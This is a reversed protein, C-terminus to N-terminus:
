AQLRRRAAAVEERMRTLQAEIVEVEAEVRAKACAEFCESYMRNVHAHLTPPVEVNKVAPTKDKTPGALALAKTIQKGDLLEMLRQGRRKDGAAEADDIADLVKLRRQVTKGSEGFLKGVRDVSKSPGGDSGAAMRRRALAAEVELLKRQERARMTETKTRYTNRRVLEREIELEADAESEPKFVECPVEALKLSRAVAHRTVGGIVRDDDTIMLPQSQDYGRRRMDARIDHYASNATPPGYLQHNLPHARLERPDRLIVKAM